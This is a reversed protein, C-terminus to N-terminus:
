ASAPAQLLQSAQAMLRSKARSATNAHFVGKRVGVDIASVTRPLMAKVAAADSAAIATRLARMANRVRTRVARNRLRRVESQRRRKLGSKIRKAM